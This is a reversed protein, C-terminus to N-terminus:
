RSKRLKKLLKKARSVRHQLAPWRTTEFEKKGNDWVIGEDTLEEIVSGREYRRLREKVDNATVKPNVAVIAFIVRQLNDPRPKKAIVSHQESDLAAIAEPGLYRQPGLEKWREAEDLADEHESLLAETHPAGVNVGYTRITRLRRQRRREQLAAIEAPSCQEELAHKTFELRERIHDPLDEPLGAVALPDPQAPRAKGRRRRAQKM